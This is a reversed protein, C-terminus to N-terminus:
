EIKRFNSCFYQFVEIEYMRNLEDITVYTIVLSWISWVAIYSYSHTNKLTPVLMFALMQSMFAVMQSLLPKKYSDTVVHFSSNYCYTLYM